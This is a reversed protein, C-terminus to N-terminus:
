IGLINGLALAFGTDCLRGERQKKWASELYKFEGMIARRAHHTIWRWEWLQEVHRVMVQTSRPIPIVTTDARRRGELALSGPPIVLTSHIGFHVVQTKVVGATSLRHLDIGLPVFHRRKSSIQTRSSRPSLAALREGLVLRHTLSDNLSRNQDLPRNGKRHRSALPSIVLMGVGGIRAM